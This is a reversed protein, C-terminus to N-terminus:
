VLHALARRSAEQQARLAEALNATKTDARSVPAGAVAHQLLLGALTGSVEETTVPPSAPEPEGNLHRVIESSLEKIQESLQHALEGAREAVHPMELVLHRFLEEQTPTPIFM